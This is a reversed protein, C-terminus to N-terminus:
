VYIEINKWKPKNKTELITTTADNVSAKVGKIRFEGTKHDLIAAHIIDKGDINEVFRNLIMTQETFTGMKQVHTQKIDNDVIHYEIETEPISVIKKVKPMNICKYHIPITYTGIDTITKVLSSV